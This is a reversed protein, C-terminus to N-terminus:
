RTALGITLLGFVKRDIICHDEPVHLDAEMRPHTHLDFSPNSSVIYRRGPKGQNEPTDAEVASPWEHNGNCILIADGSRKGAWLIKGLTGDPNLESVVRADLKIKAAKCGCRPCVPREDKTVNSM